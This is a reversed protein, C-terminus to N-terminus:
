KKKCFHLAIYPPMNKHATGQNDNRRSAPDPVIDETPSGVYTLRAGSADATVVFNQEVKLGHGHSPLDSVTLKVAESGGEDNRDRRLTTMDGKRDVRSGAVVLTRGAFRYEDIKAIDDWEKPCGGKLDFAIVAGSPIEATPGATGPPGVPGWKGLLGLEVQETAFFMAYGVIIVFVSAAASMIWGPIKSAFDWATQGTGSSSNSSNDDAMQGELSWLETGDSSQKSTAGAEILLKRLDSDSMGKFRERIRSFSRHEWRPDDLFMKISEISERSSEAM